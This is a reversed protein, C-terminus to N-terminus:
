RRPVGGGGQGWVSVWDPGEAFDHFPQLGRLSFIPEATVTVDRLPAIANDNTRPPPLAPGATSFGVGLRELYDYVAFLAGAPTNGILAHATIDANGSGRPSRLQTTTIAYAEKHTSSPAFAALESDAPLCGRTGVFLHVGAVGTQAWAEFTAGDLEAGMTGDVTVLPPLARHADILYVYRQLERAALAVSKHSATCATSATISAVSAASAAAAACAVLFARM